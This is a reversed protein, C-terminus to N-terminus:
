GCVSAQLTVDHGNSQAYQQEHEHRRHCLRLGRQRWVDMWHRQRPQRRDRRFIQVLFPPLQQRRSGRHRRARSRRVHRVVAGPLPAETDRATHVAGDARAEKLQRSSMM